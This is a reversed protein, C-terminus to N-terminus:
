QGCVEGTDGPTLTLKDLGLGSEIEKTGQVQPRFTPLTKEPHKPRNM